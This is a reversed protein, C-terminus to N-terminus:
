FRPDLAELCGIVSDSQMSMRLSLPLSISHFLLSFNGPLVWSLFESLSRSALLLSCMPRCTCCRTHGHTGGCWFGWIEGSIQSDGVFTGFGGEASGAGWKGLLSEGLDVCICCGVFARAGKRELRVESM